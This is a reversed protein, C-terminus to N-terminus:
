KDGCHSLSVVKTGEPCVTKIAPCGAVRAAGKRYSRESRMAM